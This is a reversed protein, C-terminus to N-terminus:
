ECVRSNVCLDVPTVAARGSHQPELPERTTHRPQRQQCCAAAECGRPAALLLKIPTSQM